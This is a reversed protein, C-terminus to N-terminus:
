DRYKEEIAKRIQEEATLDCHLAGCSQCKAVSFEPIVVEKERIKAHYNKVITRYVDWEGCEVCHWPYPKHKRLNKGLLLDINAIIEENDEKTIDFDADDILRYWQNVFDDITNIFYQSTGSPTELTFVLQNGSIRFICSFNKGKCIM